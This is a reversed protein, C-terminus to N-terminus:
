FRTVGLPECCELVANQIASYDITVRFKAALADDIPLEDYKYLINYDM